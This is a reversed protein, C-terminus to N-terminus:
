IKFHASGVRQRATFKADGNSELSHTQLIGYRLKSIFGPNSITPRNIGSESTLDLHSNKGRHQKM